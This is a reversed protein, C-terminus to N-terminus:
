NQIRFGVSFPRFIAFVLCHELFTFIRIQRDLNLASTLFRCFYGLCLNITKVQNMTVELRLIIEMLPTKVLLRM